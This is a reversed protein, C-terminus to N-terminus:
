IRRGGVVRPIRALDNRCEVDAFGARTFLEAVNAAQGAGVECLLWGGTRLHAPAEALIRRIAEDGAPGAALAGAPEHHLEPQAAALEADTLYPPNATILHYVEAVSAFGDSRLVRLTLGLAMANGAAVACAQQSVDIATVRVDPREHAM